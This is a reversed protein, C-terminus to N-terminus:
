TSEQESAFSTQLPPLPHTIDHTLETRTNGVQIDQKIMGTLEEVESTNDDFMSTRKALQALKQLKLSTRHIGHGIDAARRSFESQM